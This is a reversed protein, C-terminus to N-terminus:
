NCDAVIWKGNNLGAESVWSLKISQGKRLDHIFPTTITPVSRISVVRTRNSINKIEFSHTICPRSVFNPLYVTAPNSSADVLLIKDDIKLTYNLTECALATIIKEGYSILNEPIVLFEEPKYKNYGVLRNLVATYIFVGDNTPFRVFNRTYTALTPSSPASLFNYFNVGSALGIQLLTSFYAAITPSAGRLTTAFPEEFVLNIGNGGYNNVLNVNSAGYLAKFEYVIARQLNINNKNYIDDLNVGLDTEIEYQLRNMLEQRGRNSALFRSATRDFWFYWKPRQAVFEAPLWLYNTRNSTMGLAKSISGFTLVNKSTVTARADNVLNICESVTPPLVVNSPTIYNNAPTAFAFDIVIIERRDWGIAGVPNDLDHNVTPVYSGPNSPAIIWEIIKWNSPSNIPPRRPSAIPTGNVNLGLNLNVVAENLQQVVSKIPDNRLVRLIFINDTDTLNYHNVPGGYAPAEQVVIYKVSRDEIAFTTLFFGEIASAGGTSLWFAPKGAATTPPKYLSLTGKLTHFQEIKEEMFLPPPGQLGSGTSPQNAPISGFARFPEYVETFYYSEPINLDGTQQRIQDYYTEAGSNFINTNDTILTAPCACSEQPYDDEVSCNRTSVYNRTEPFKQESSRVSCVLQTSGGPGKQSRCAYENKSAFTKRM